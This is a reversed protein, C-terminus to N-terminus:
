VNCALALTCLQTFRMSPVNHRVTIHAPTTAASCAVRVCHLSSLPGVGCTGVACSFAELESRLASIVLAAGGSAAVYGAIAHHSVVAATPVLFSDRSIDAAAASLPESLRLASCQEFTTWAVARPDICSQWLTGQPPLMDFGAQQLSCVVSAALKEEDEHSSVQLQEARLAWAVVFVLALQVLLPPASGPEGRVPLADAWRQLACDLVGPVLQAIRRAVLLTWTNECFGHDACALETVWFAHLASALKSWLPVLEAQM